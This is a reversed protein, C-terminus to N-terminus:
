PFYQIHGTHLIMFGFSFFLALITDLMSFYKDEVIRLTSFRRNPQGIASPGSQFPFAGPLLPFLWAGEIRLAVVDVGTRPNRKRRERQGILRRRTIPIRRWSTLLTNM